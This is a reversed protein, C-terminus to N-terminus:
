FAYAVLALIVRTLMGAGIGAIWDDVMVGWPGTLGEDVARVAGVKYGDLARFFVFLLGYGWWSEPAALLWGLALGQWEDWVIWGPDSDDGHRASQVLGIAWYGLPVSAMLCVALVAESPRLWILLLLAATSGWTGPAPRLYGSGLGSALARAFFRALLGNQAPNAM